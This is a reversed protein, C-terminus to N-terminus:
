DSILLNQAVQALTREPLASAANDEAEGAEVVNVSTEHVDGNIDIVQIASQPKPGNEETKGADKGSYPM